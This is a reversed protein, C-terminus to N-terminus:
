QEHDLLDRDQAHKPETSNAIMARLTPRSAVKVMRHFLRADHASAWADEFSLAPDTLLDALVSGDDLHVQSKTQQCLRDAGWGHTRLRPLSDIAAVTRAANEQTCEILVDLDNSGIPRDPIHWRMASGGVVIFRVGFTTLAEVLPENGPFTPVDTPKMGGSRHPGGLGRFLGSVRRSAPVANLHAKASRM